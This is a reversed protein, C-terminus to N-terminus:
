FFDRGSLYYITEDLLCYHPGVQSTATGCASQTATRFLVLRPPEYTLNNQVFVQRWMDNNSGLVTSAFVEYDDEGLFEERTLSQQNQNAVETLQGLVDGMDGGTLLNFLLLLAVGGLSVGGIATPVM